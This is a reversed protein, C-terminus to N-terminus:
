KLSFNYTFSLWPIIVRHYSENLDSAIAIDASWKEGYIRIGISGISFEDNGQIWNETMLKFGDKLKVEGGLILLPYVSGHRSRFDYGVGITANYDSNGLTSLFYAFSFIENSSSSETSAAYILGASFASWENQYPTVKGNFIFLPNSLLTVMNLGINLSLFNGLGVGLTPFQLYDAHLYGQNQGIPRATPFFFMRSLNRDSSKLSDENVSPSLTKFEDLRSIEEIESQPVQIKIQASTIFNLTKNETSAIRGILVSGDKLVIRMTPSKLTDVQANCVTALLLSLFLTSYKVILKFSM